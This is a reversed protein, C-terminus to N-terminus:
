LLCSLHSYSPYGQLFGASPVEVSEHCLNAMARCEQEVSSRSIIPQKKQVEM